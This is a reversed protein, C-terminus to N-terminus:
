TVINLGAGCSGCRGEDTMNVLRSSFGSRSIVTEGCQPCVTDTTGNLFINGVYVYKLRERALEYARQLTEAPTPPADLKHAPHYRSLHVPMDERVAAAWDFIATLEEDSDNYGPIILVTIEVHCQEVAIEVTRRAPWAEGSCLERYFDDSWAKIDVNMAGIYPLLERLPEEEIIGNTVLVNQMGAEQVLRATDYVYEYWIIPENYTYAIGINGAKTRWEEAVKLAQEPEIHQTSPRGQSITWNQCFVCSLNCGFTGLSLIDTGPFFHYLPKKEIPDMTVSTAEAYNLSRLVGDVNERVRCRGTKGPRIRCHWPCLGCQLYGEASEYYRCEVLEKAM